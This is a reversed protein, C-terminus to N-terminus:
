KIGRVDINSCHHGPKFLTNDIEVPAFVILYGNAHHLQLILLVQSRATVQIRPKVTGCLVGIARPSHFSLWTKSPILALKNLEVSYGLFSELSNMGFEFDSSSSTTDLFVALQLVLVVSNYLM